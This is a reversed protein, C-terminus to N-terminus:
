NRVRFEQFSFLVISFAQCWLGVQTSNYVQWLQREVGTICGWCLKKFGENEACPLWGTSCSWIELAMVLESFRMSYTGVSYRYSLHRAQDCLIATLPYLNTFKAFLPTHFWLDRNRKSPQKKWCVCFQSTILRARFIPILLQKMQILNYFLQLSLTPKYQEHKMKSTKGLVYRRAFNFKFFFPLLMLYCLHLSFSFLVSRRKHRHWAPLGGGM